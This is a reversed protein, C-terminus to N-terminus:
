REILGFEVAFELLEGLDVIPREALVAAFAPRFGYRVLRERQTEYDLSEVVILRDARKCVLTNDIVSFM